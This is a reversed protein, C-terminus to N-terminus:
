QNVLRNGSRQPCCRFVGNPHCLKNHRPNYTEPRLGQSWLILSSISLDTERGSRAAAFYGM